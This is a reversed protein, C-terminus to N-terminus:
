PSLTIVEASSGTPDTLLIRPLGDADHVMNLPMPKLRLRERLSSVIPNVKGKEIAGVSPFPCFIFFIESVVM